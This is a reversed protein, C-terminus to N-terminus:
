RDKGSEVVLSEEHRCRGIGKLRGLWWSVCEGCLLLESFVKGCLACYVGCSEFEKWGLEGCKWPGRESAYWYWTMKERCYSILECLM